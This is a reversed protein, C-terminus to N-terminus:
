AQPLAPTVPPPEDPPGEKAPKPALHKGLVESLSLTEIMDRLGAKLAAEAESPGVRRTIPRRKEPDALASKLLQDLAHPVSLPVVLVACHVSRESLNECRHWYGGPVHFVDGPSLTEEALLQADAPFKPRVMGMVPNEVPPGYVFWKKSGDIQMILIDEPDFHIPLAGGDGTTVVLATRVQEGIVERIGQCLAEMRPDYQNAPTIIVSAGKDMFRVVRALDIRDGNRYLLPALSEGNRVLRFGNETFSQTEIIAAIYDWDIFHQFRDRSTAPFLRIRRDYLGPLFEAESLPSVLDGLTVPHPDKGM